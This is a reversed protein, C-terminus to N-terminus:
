TVATLYEDLVDHLLAFAESLRERECGYREYWHLFAGSAFMRESKNLITSVTHVVSASNCAVTLTTSARSGGAARATWIDVPSPNWDACRFGKSLNKELAGLESVLADRRSGRAVAVLSTTQYHAASLRSLVDSIHRSHAPATTGSGRAYRTLRHQKALQDAMATWSRAHSQWCHDVTFLKLSPLPCVTRCLDWPELGISWGGLSAGSASNEAPLFLGCMMEAGLRNMDALTAHTCSTASASAATRPRYHAATSAQESQCQRLLLDNELLLIGDCHSYLHQLCLACNYWQMPSEGNLLPAVCVSLQQALPYEDRLCEVLHSGMGSGTGGSLSHTVVFGSFADCREVERRLSELTQDLLTCGDICRSGTGSASEVLKSYGMAWNAGRGRRSCLVNEDRLVYDNTSTASAKSGAANSKNRINSRCSTRRVADLVKPETDVLVRRQRGDVTYFPHREGASDAASGTGTTREDVCKWFAEGLQVGCQGVNLFVTSM